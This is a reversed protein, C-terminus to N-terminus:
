GFDLSPAALEVREDGRRRDLAGPRRVDRGQLRDIRRQLREFALREADLAPGLAEQQRGAVALEHQHHV